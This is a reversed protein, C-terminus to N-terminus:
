KNLMKEIRNLAFLTGTVEYENHPGRSYPEKLVSRIDASEDSYVRQYADVMSFFLSEKKAPVTIIRRRFKKGTELVVHLWIGIEPELIRAYTYMKGNENPNSVFQYERVYGRIKLRRVEEDFAKLNLHNRERDFRTYNLKSTTLRDSLIEVALNEVQEALHQPVKFSFFGEIHGKFKLDKLWHEQQWEELLKELPEKIALNARIQVTADHRSTKVALTRLNDYVSKTSRFRFYRQHNSIAEQIDLRYLLGNQRYELAKEKVQYFNEPLACVYFNFYPEESELLLKLFLIMRTDADSIVMYRRGTARKASADKEETFANAFYMPHNRFQGVLALEKLLAQIEYERHTNFYIKVPKDIMYAYSNINKSPDLIPDMAQLLPANSQNASISIVLRYGQDDIEYQEISGFRFIIDIVNIYHQIRIIDEQEKTRDKVNIDYIYNRHVLNDQALLGGAITLLLLLTVGHKIM